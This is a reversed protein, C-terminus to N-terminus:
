CFLTSIRLLFLLLKLIDDLVDTAGPSPMDENDIVIEKDITVCRPLQELRQYRHADVPGALHRDVNRPVEIDIM